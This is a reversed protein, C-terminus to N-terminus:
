AGFEARDPFLRYAKGAQHGYFYRHVSHRRPWEGNTKSLQPTGIIGRSPDHGALASVGAYGEAFCPPETLRAMARLAAAPSYLGVGERFRPRAGWSRGGIGFARDGEL